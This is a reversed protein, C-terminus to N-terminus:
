QSECLKTELLNLRRGCQSSILLAREGCKSEVNRNLIIPVLHRQWSACPRLSNRGALCALQSLWKWNSTHTRDAARLLAQSMTRLNGPPTPGPAIVPIGETFPSPERIRSVWNPHDLIIADPNQNFERQLNLSIVRRPVEKEVYDALKRPKIYYYPDANDTRDEIITPVEGLLGDLLADTYIARYNGAAIKPDKTEAATKGLSCAFFQDVPRSQSNPLDNPFIDSGRVNQAQIGEPAVRCADSIFVVHPIGCYRALVVNGAVDVAASTRVPAETLLWQESRHINIGHGAFYVILQQIGPGDILAKISDYISDINVKKGGSDTILIAHTRDAMGQKLAWAHMREASTAADNLRQLDGSKDVGIFIGARVIPTPAM